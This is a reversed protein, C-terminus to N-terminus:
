ISFSSISSWENGISLGSPKEMVIVASVPEFM